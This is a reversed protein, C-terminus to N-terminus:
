RVEVLDNNRVSSKAPRRILWEAVALNIAWGAALALARATGTPPGALLVVPLQTLAQTGAGQAVALGGGEERLDGSGRAPAHRGM